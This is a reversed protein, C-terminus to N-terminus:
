FSMLISPCALQHKHSASVVDNYVGACIEQSVEYSSNNVTIKNVALGALILLTMVTSRWHLVDEGGKGSRSYRDIM